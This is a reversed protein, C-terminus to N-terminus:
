LCTFIKLGHKLQVVPESVRKLNASSGRSLIIDVQDPGRTGGLGALLALGRCRVM